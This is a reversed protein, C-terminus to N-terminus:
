KGVSYLIVAFARKVAADTDVRGDGTVFNYGCGKCKYRQKGRVRGNKVIETKGCNKCADMIVAEREPAMM